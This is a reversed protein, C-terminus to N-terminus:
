RLLEVDRDKARDRAERISKQLRDIGPYDGWAGVAPLLGRGQWAPAGAADDVPVLAAVRKGRRRVVVRAGDHVVRDLYESFHRKLEAVGIGRQTMSTKNM